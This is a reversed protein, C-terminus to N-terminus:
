NKIKKKKKKKNKREKEKAKRWTSASVGVVYAQSAPQCALGHSYASQLRAPHQSGLFCAPSADYNGLVVKTGPCGVQVFYM